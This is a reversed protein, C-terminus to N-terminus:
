KIIIPKIPIGPGSGNRGDGQSLEEFKIVGPKARSSYGRTRELIYALEAETYGPVTGQRQIILDKFNSYKVQWDGLVKRGNRAASIDASSLKDFNLTEIPYKYVYEIPPEKRPLIHDVYIQEFRKFTDLLNIEIENDPCTFHYPNEPNQYLDFETMEGTGQNIMLLIGHTVKFHYLYIALQKLYSTRVKGGTVQIHNHQGYYTKIEVIATEGDLYVGADPYGSIPVKNEGWEFYVREDNTFRKVLINAKRMLAVASKESMSRMTLMMVTEGGMTNTQPTGMWTHYIDFAMAETESAWFSTKKKKEGRLKNNAEAQESMTEILSGM